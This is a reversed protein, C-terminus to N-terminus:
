LLAAILSPHPDTDKPLIGPPFFKQDLLAFLAYTSAVALTVYLVTLLSFKRQFPKAYLWVAYLMTRVFLLFIEKTLIAMCLAVAAFLFTGMKSKGTTILCLSLLLWFLGINDILVERRFFLSLPSLAYILTALLAASRSGSLRSATLYLLLSSAAALVL